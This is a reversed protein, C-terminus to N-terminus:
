GREELIDKVAKLFEQMGFPKKLIGVAGLQETIPLIVPDYGTMALIKAGPYEARLEWVVIVGDKKPMVIDTVVLDTPEERYLRVGEEGDSACVVEYGAEELTEQLVELMSEEDDIVLIRAMKAM